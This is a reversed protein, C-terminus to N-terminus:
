EYRCLSHEKVFQEAEEVSVNRNSEIDLKNGILYIKIHDHSNKRVEALWESIANM